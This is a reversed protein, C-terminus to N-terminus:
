KKTPKDKREDVPPKAGMALVAAVAEKAGENFALWLAEDNTLGQGTQARHNTILWDIVAKNTPHIRISVTDGKRVM